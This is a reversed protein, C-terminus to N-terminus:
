PGCAPDLPGLRTVGDADVFPTGACRVRLVADRQLGAFAIRQGCWYPRDWVGPVSGDDYVWGSPVGHLLVDHAGAAGVQRARCVERLTTEGSADVFSEVEVLELGGPLDACHAYQQGPRLLELVECAVLGDADPVLPRELCVSTLPGTDERGLYRAIADFDPDCISQVVGDVRRTLEVLRRAPSATVSPTSCAPVLAGSAPDQVVSMRPDDLITELSAQGGLITDALDPPVGAVTVVLLDEPDPRVDQLGAVYRDIDFLRGPSLAPRVDLDNPTIPTTPEFLTPDAASGDDEDSVFVVILLSDYRLFDRNEGTQNGHAPTGSLYDGGLPVYDPSALAKLMMELPQEFGCTGGHEDTWCDLQDEVVTPDQGDYHELYRAAFSGNCAGVFLGDDGMRSGCPGTPVEGLGGGDSTMMALHLSQPPTFDRIGAGPRSTRAESDGTVLIDVLRALMPHIVERQRDMSPSGDIVFLVDVANRLEGWVHTELTTETCPAEPAAACGLALVLVLGISSRGM